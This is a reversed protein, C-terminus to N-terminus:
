VRATYAPPLILSSCAELTQAVCLVAVAFFMVRKM